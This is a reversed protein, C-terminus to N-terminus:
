CNRGILHTWSSGIEPWCWRQYNRMQYYTIVKSLECLVLTGVPGIVAM